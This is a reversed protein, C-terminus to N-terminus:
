TMLMGSRTRVALNRAPMGILEFQALAQALAKVTSRVAVVAESGTESVAKPESATQFSPRLRNM